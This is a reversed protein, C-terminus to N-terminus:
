FNDSIITFGAGRQPNTKIGNQNKKKELLSIGEAEQTFNLVLINAM